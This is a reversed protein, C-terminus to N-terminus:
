GGQIFQTYQIVVDQEWKISNFKFFMQMLLEVTLYIRLPAPFETIKKYIKNRLSAGLGNPVDRVTLKQKKLVAFRTQHLHKSHVSLNPRLMICFYLGKCRTETTSLFMITSSTLEILIITMIKHLFRSWKAFTHKQLLLLGLYSFLTLQRSSSLSLPSPKGTSLALWSLYLGLTFFLKSDLVM